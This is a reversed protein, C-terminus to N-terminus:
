RQKEKSYLVKEVDKNTIIKEQIEKENDNIIQVIYEKKSIIRKIIAKGSNKLKIVDFQKM